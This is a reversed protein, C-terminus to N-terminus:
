YSLTMTGGSSITTTMWWVSSFLPIWANDFLLCTVTANIEADFSATSVARSITLDPDSFTCFLGSYLHTRANSIQWQTGSRSVDFKYSMNIIGATYSSTWTGVSAPNSTSGRPQLAPVYSLTLTITNGDEDVSYETTSYAQSFDIDDLVVAVVIDDTTDPTEETAFATLSTTIIMVFSLVIALTRKITFKM